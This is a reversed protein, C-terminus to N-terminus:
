RAKDAAQRLRRKADSWDSVPEEGAALRAAREDLETAHWDPSAFEDGADRCISEWFIEMARLREPLPLSVLEAADM